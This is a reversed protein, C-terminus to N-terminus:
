NGAKGIGQQGIAGCAILLGAVITKSDVIEGAMVNRYFDEVDMWFVDIFEGDDLDRDAESLGSAWYFRIMEDSYGVATAMDLLHTIEEAVMGTEERLERAAAHAPDEGPDIKGAPIEIIVEDLATRYQRELLIRQGDDSLVILCVAGPHRLVERKSARGDPLTVDLLDIKALKGDFVRNSGVITERLREDGSAM